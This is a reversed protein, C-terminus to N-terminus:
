LAEGKTPDYPTFGPINDRHNWRLKEINFNSHTPSNGKNKEWWNRFKTNSKLLSELGQHFGHLWANHKARSIPLDKFIYPGGPLWSADWTLGTAKGENFSQATVSEDWRECQQKPRPKVPLPQKCCPCHGQKVM